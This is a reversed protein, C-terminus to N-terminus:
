LRGEKAQKLKEVLGYDIKTMGIKVEPKAEGHCDSGGTILLNHKRAFDLYFNVMAQTHEPYYVELGMLGALIFREILEDNKLVYPHALVPIGGAKKILAIAQEPSFKFGGFYAPGSDGIYKQFAEYTSGILGDKVMARAIHLRGVTGQGSLAFVSDAKLKIGLENLKETIKHVREVRDSNLASLKENLLGDQYNIFYGLFHIEAGECEATLEIGPLVELGNKEGTSISEAIGAVTDHDTVAIAGLGKKVAQEVLERPSYTGDSFYTHLHLDAFKAYSVM